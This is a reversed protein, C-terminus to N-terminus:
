ALLFLHQVQDAFAQGVPLDRCAHGQRFLGGLVVYGGQQGLKAQVAARLYGEEGGAARVSAALSVVPAHALRWPSARAHDQVHRRRDSCASRVSCAVEGRPHIRKVYRMISATFTRSFSEPSTEQTNRGTMKYRDCNARPPRSRQRCALKPPGSSALQRDNACLDKIDIAAGSFRSKAAARDAPGPGTRALALDPQGVPMMRGTM